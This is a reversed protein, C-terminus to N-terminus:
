SGKPPEIVAHRLTARGHRDLEVWCGETRSWAGALILDVGAIRRRWQQHIHGAILLDAGRAAGRIRRPDLMDLSAGAVRQQRRLALQRRRSGRRIRRAVLEHVPAPFCAKWARFWFSRLFAFMFHYGPDRCLRDGHVVRVLRGDVPLDIQPWCVRCGTAVGLLRGASLERNGLLLDLRWGARRLAWLRRLCPQYRRLTSPTDVWVEFLDGLIVLRAPPLAALRDLFGLFAGPEESLHVDGCIYAAPQM